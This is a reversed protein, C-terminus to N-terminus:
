RSVGKFSEGFVRLYENFCGEFNRSAGKFSGKICGQCNKSIGNFNRQLKISGLFKRSVAKLCQFMNLYEMLSRQFEKIFLNIFQTVVDSKSCSFISLQPIVALISM